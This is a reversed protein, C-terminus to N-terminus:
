VHNSTLSKRFPSINITEEFKKCVKELIKAEFPSLLYASTAKERYFHDIRERRTDKVYRDDELGIAWGESTNTYTVFAEVFDNDSDFLVTVLALPIKFHRRKQLEGAFCVAILFAFIIIFPTTKRLKM